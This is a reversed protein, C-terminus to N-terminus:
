IRESLQGQPAGFLQQMMRQQVTALARKQIGQLKLDRERYGSIDVPGSTPAQTGNGYVPRGTAFPNASHVGLLPDVEGYAM